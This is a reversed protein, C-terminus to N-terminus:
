RGDGSEDGEALRPPMYEDPIATGYNKEVSECFRRWDSVTTQPLPGGGSGPFCDICPTEYGHGHVDVGYKTFRAISRGDTGSNVWVTVGDTLVEHGGITRPKMKTVM